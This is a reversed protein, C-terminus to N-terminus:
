ALEAWARKDGVRGRGDASFAEAQRGVGLLLPWGDWGTARPGDPSPTVGRGFCPPRGSPGGRQNAFRCRDKRISARQVPTHRPAIHLM